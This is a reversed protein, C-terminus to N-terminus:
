PLIRNPGRFLFTAEKISPLNLMKAILRALGLGFGGHPPCGYRFFDIYGQMNEPKIGKDKINECLEDVRHERQAGSTIEGDKYLLDYCKCNAPNDECKMSYFAREAFPYETIFILESDFNKKAYDCILRESETDFDNSGNYKYEEKLIKMANAYSMRPLPLTPVKIECGFVEKIQEGFKEKIQELVYAILKEQFDMIDNHSNIYSMEVDFGVFETAHRATHSQEARFYEGIEFVREFGSSMAMQKYLQPSQTLYAPTGYYDVKFVESGGESSQASIKPTHIEICNNEICFDRIAKEVFTSVKFVLTKKDDRLDIWRYNMREEMQAQENIPLAEAKSLVEVSEPILEMGNLKVYDNAVAQAVISVVSGVILGSFVSAVEPLKEKEVTVQMKGTTDKIVIFQMSKKDRLNEIFGSVKVKQGAKVDKIYTREM